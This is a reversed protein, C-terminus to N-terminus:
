DRLENLENLQVKRHDGTTQLDFNAHKLAYYAKYELEILLHCAKGYVVKYQTCGIPTKFAIRFSWLADDLKELWSARNESMLCSRQLSTMTSTRVVIVLSPVLPELDPLPLKLSNAFLELTTPPSRKRKFGNQCTILLWSYINTGEHLRSRGWSTSAKKTTYNLGHHGKTPGYHCAKLIDIAEQGHVCRRIVHFSVMNLTELSYSENLKKPDLMNQHPNELRSFHDAALNEAGKIDIVKFTFEQLLLVWRLLIAKSDIAFDSADCMLEFPLDWDPAILIRAETLKRKLTQFAEVCEISFFFLADKELLRTMPRAIKSFDHIFRRYFGAHGLFSRIGKVTTPHPLKAIVDVKAKDVEIENKSIKHGLVIVEKVMFHSKKWNLCLNTDECRKLMGKSCARHMAYDLLCAVTPLRKTLVRLHPRKKIKRISPFKFIVLNGDAMEINYTTDLTISLIYLMSAFSISVFSRDAGSDFLTRAPRHNLLFTGTVVNPDQHANKDRLLYTRGNANINTKLCQSQYHGKEECAHCIVFVPQLNSGTAPGKNRYNKTLHGVKNSVRSRITCPGTHHLTCRHCLPHNGTYGRNETLTAAYSKFTEQRRNQQQHSDNMDNKHINQYNNHYKNNSSINKKDKFKRKHDNTGQISNHKTVQDMLRQAINIAEELTQPKSATVNGKIIKPLGDIFVEILKENNPVMDLCLTALEQFRRVYTKLDNGKVSLNYFEDEMKNEEACNRRSFVSETREFWCILGVVGKTGNFYFPQCSIFEKYNGRKAVLIERIFNDAEAMTATQTELAAAVSNAVLKRIAAQSMTSVESTSSRKPPM